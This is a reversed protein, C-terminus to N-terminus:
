PTSRQLPDASRRARLRELLNAKDVGAPVDEAANAEAARGKAAPPPQDPAAAPPPAQGDPPAEAAAEAEPAPGGTDGLFERLAPDHEAKPCGLYIIHDYPVIFISGANTTGMLRGKVVAFDPDIRLIARVAIETGNVLNIVLNPQSAPPLLRLLSIWASSQM